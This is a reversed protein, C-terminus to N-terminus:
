GAPPALGDLAALLPERLLIEIGFGNEEEAEDIIDDDELYRRLEMVQEPTAPEETLNAAIARLLIFAEPAREFDLKRVEAAVAHLSAVAKGRAAKWAAMGTPATAGGTPVDINLFRKIWVSAADPADAGPM